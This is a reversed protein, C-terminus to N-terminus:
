IYNDVNERFSVSLLSALERGAERATDLDRYSMITPVFQGRSTIVKIRYGKNRGHNFSYRFLVLEQIESRQLRISGFGMSSAKRFTVEGTATNVTVGGRGMTRGIVFISFVLSGFMVPIFTYLMISTDQGSGGMSKIVIIVIAATVFGSFVMGTLVIKRKLSGARATGVSSFRQGDSKFHNM